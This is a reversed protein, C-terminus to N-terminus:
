TSLDAEPVPVPMPEDGGFGHMRLAWQLAILAGKVRPLLFLSMVITLPIWIMMHVWTPPHAIAEVTVFSGVVVHGTILITFYAPADDARQHHLELGCHECVPRVKSYGQFIHGNGCEPCRKLFGLRMAPWVPRKPLEDTLYRIPM